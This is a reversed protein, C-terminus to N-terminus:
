KIEQNKLIYAIEKDTQEIRSVNDSESAMKLESEADIENLMEECTKIFIERHTKRNPNLIRKKRM